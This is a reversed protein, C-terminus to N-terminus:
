GTRIREVSHLQSSLKRGLVEAASRFILTAGKLRRNHWSSLVHIFAVTFTVDTNVGESPPAGRVM